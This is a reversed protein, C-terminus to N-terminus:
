NYVRKADYIPWVHRSAHSFRLDSTISYRPTDGEPIFFGVTKKGSKNNRAATRYFFIAFLLVTFLLCSAVFCREIRNIRLNVRAKDAQM